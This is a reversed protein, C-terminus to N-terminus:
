NNEGTEFDQLTKGSKMKWETLGSASRGMIIMAASSSSSFLHDQKLIMKDNNKVIVRASIFKDLLKQM